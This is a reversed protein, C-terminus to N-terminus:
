PTAIHITKISNLHHTEVSQFVTLEFSLNIPVSAAALAACHPHNNGPLQPVRWFRQFNTVITDRSGSHKFTPAIALCPRQVWVKRKLTLSAWPHVSYSGCSSTVLIELLVSVHTLSVSLYLRSFRTHGNLLQTQATIRAARQILSVARYQRSFFSFIIQLNKM